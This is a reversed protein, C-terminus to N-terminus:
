YGKLLMFLPTVPVNDCGSCFRFHTVLNANSTAYDMEFPNAISLLNWVLNGFCLKGYTFSTIFLDSIHLPLLPLTRTHIDWHVPSITFDHSCSNLSFDFTLVLFPTSIIHTLTHATHSFHLGWLDSWFYLLHLPAARACRSSFLDRNSLSM